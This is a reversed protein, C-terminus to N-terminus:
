AGTSTGISNHKAIDSSIEDVYKRFSRLLTRTTIVGVVHDGRTVVMQRVGRAVMLEVAQDTPLDASCTVVPKSAIASVPVTSPDIGAAVVKSVIDWETVIGSIPHEGGALIAYGQRHDTMQKACTLVDTGSDVVLVASDMLDAAKRVM